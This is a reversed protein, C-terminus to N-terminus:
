NLAASHSPKAARMENGEISLQTQPNQLGRKTRKLQSSLKLTKCGKTENGENLQSSLKHPKSTLLLLMLRRKAIGFGIGACGVLLGQILPDM